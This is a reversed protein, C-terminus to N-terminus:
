QSWQQSNLVIQMRWSKRRTVASLLGTHLPLLLGSHVPVCPCELWDHKVALSKEWLLFLSILNSFAVIWLGKKRKGKWKSADTADFLICGWVRTHVKCLLEIFDLIDVNIQLQGRDVTDQPNHGGGFLLREVIWLKDYVSDARAASLHHSSQEKSSALNRLVRNISSMNLKTTQNM